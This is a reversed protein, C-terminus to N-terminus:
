SWPMMMDHVRLQEVYVGSHRLLDVGSNRGYEQDFYVEHIGSNSIVLACALCPEHTTFMISNDLAMGHKAAFAIANMEAHIAELCPSTDGEPHFCHDLGAPAGNYGTSLVRGARSVVAGVHLRSCTGLQGYAWAVRMMTAMKLWRRDGTM